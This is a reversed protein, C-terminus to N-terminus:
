DNNGEKYLALKEGFSVRKIGTHFALDDLIFDSIITTQKEYLNQLYDTDASQINISIKELLKNSLNVYKTLPEEYFTYIGILLLTSEVVFAEKEEGDAVGFKKLAKNWTDVAIKLSLDNDAKNSSARKRTFNGIRSKLIEMQKIELCRLDTIIARFLHSVILANQLNTTVAKMKIRSNIKSM